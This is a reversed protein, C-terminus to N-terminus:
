WSKGKAPFDPPAAGAISINVGIRGQKNVSASARQYARRHPQSPLRADYTSDGRDHLSPDERRRWASVAADYFRHQAGARFPRSREIGRGPHL